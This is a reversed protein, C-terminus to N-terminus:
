GARFAFILVGGALSALGFTWAATWLTTLVDRRICSVILTLLHASVIYILFASFLIPFVREMLVVTTGHPTVLGALFVIAVCFFFVRTFRSDLVFQRWHREASEIQTKTPM